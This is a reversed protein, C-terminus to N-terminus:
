FRSATLKIDAKVWVKRFQTDVANAEGLRRQARLSRALGYLSWGNDPYIALDARYVQEAERARGTELLVAGLHHRAPVFWDSPEQYVLVDELKVAERLFRVARRTDGRAYAIEGALVARAIRLVQAMSNNDWIKAAELTVDEVLAGLAALETQADALEGRRAFMLGRAYHWVGRAYPLDDAPAPTNRIDSWRGFRVYAYLPMSWYHQLGEYGPQRMLQQDQHAAIHRAAEIARASMGIFSAAAALFHHNHPVYGIPYVGQAHCQAIYANDAAIGKENAIVADHYRGVRIYIHSPMHQLHGANPVLDRLRDAAAMARRPQVKEVAHILLHNAGPHNPYRALVNELTGVITQTALKPKGDAEWYDWPMTDMLAEAYLTQADADEPFRRAVAGMAEAYTQDLTGREAAADPAYRRALAEIYARERETVRDRLALAQRVAALADPNDAPDMKANINPGLVLAEGWFCMACEADLYQAQRFSRAAEKHNFGYALVLGQDFYRQALPSDTTIEHHHTGMGELLPAIRLGHPMLEVAASVLGALGLALIAILRRM